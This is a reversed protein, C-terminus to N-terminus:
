GARGKWRFPLFLGTIGVMVVYIVQFVQAIVYYRLLKKKRFFHYMHLVLPFEVLMKIIWFILFLVLINPFFLGLIFGGMILLHVLFTAAGVGIVVPDRYGRSKSVWRIRQNFFGKLGAEPETSVIALPDHNFRIAGSGYNERVSNLLFQDDGSSFRLNGHYGGCKEFAVRRYALNAGNCMVPFGLATSGATTGMIGLFELSQIRQLLNNEMFFSVPGLVMQTQKLTFSNVMSSVWGPGHFTDADTGLIFEGSSRGVARTVARKKGSTEKEPQDSGVLILPFGPYKQAFQNAIQMTQDESDDDTVIVEMLHAPFDQQRMEELIRQIHLSENRVPIIVTVVKGSTQGATSEPFGRDPARRYRLLGATFALIISGYFGLVLFMVLRFVDEIVMILYM